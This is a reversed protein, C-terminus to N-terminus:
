QTEEEAAASSTANTEGKESDNESKLAKKDDSNEPKEIPYTFVSPFTVIENYVLTGMILLFFGALEGALFKEQGLALFVMWIILTRCTDITSRQAASAYKTIMVGTVNFGAITIINALSQALLM